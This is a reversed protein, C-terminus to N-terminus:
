NLIRGLAKQPNKAFVIKQRLLARKPIELLGKRIKKKGQDLKKKMARPQLNLIFQNAQHIQLQFM